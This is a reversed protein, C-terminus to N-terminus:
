NIEFASHLRIEKDVEPQLKCIRQKIYEKISM